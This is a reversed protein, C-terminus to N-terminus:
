LLMRGEPLTELEIKWEKMDKEGHYRLTAYDRLNKIRVYYCFPYNDDPVLIFRGGSQQVTKLFVHIEDVVAPDQVDVFTLTFTHAGSYFNDWPQGYHTQQDGKYFVPSDPRGPQLHVDPTFQQWQGLVLEGIELNYDNLSDIIDQRYYQYTMNIKKCSNRFDSIIRDSLDLEEDPNDWDCIGPDECPDVCGKFTLEDGGASLDTFNHNFNAWFTVPQPADFAVCVWEPVPNPAVGKGDFRLPLSPITNYLNAMESWAESGDSSVCCLTSLTVLNETVYILGM